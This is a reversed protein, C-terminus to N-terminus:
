QGGENAVRIATLVTAAVVISQIVWSVVDYETFALADGESLVGELAMLIVLAVAIHQLTKITKM